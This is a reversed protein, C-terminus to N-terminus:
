EERPMLKLRQLQKQAAELAALRIELEAKLQRDDLKFLTTGPELVSNLRDAPIVEAVVGPLPSAASIIQTKPEVVGAAATGPGAPRAPADAAPKGEESSSHAKLVFFVAFGLAAVALAPLIYRVFM